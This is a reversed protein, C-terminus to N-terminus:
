GTATGSSEGPRTADLLEWCEHKFCCCSLAETKRRGDEMQTTVLTLLGCGRQNHHHRHHRSMSIIGMIGKTTDTTAEVQRNGCWPPWQQTDDSLSCFCISFYLWGPDMRWLVTTKDVDEMGELRRQLLTTVLGRKKQSHCLNIPQQNTTMSRPLLWLDERTLCSMVGGIKWGTCRTCLRSWAKLGRKRIFNKEKKDLSRENWTGKCCV